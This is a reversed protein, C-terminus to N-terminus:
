VFAGNLDISTGNVYGNNILFEITSLIENPEAFRGAPIKTLLDQKQPASIQTLGMGIDSYGLNINNVTIGKSANEAALAKSLGWLASKSAAYASTGPVARQAVVSGINIIRGYGRERMLPLFARTVNFTGILNTEIVDRWANVDAKHAFANYSVGACNILVMDKLSELDLGGKWAEVAEFNRVDVKALRADTSDSSRFTGLVPQTKEFHEFLFKGIGKAAGTVIIM